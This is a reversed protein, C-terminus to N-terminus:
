GGARTPAPPTCTPRLFPPAFFLHAGAITSQPRDPRPLIHQRDAHFNAFHDAHDLRVAPSPDTLGAAVPLVTVGGLRPSNVTAPWGPSSTLGPVNALM